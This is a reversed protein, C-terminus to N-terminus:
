NEKVIYGVSIGMNLLCDKYVDLVRENIHPDSLDNYMRVLINKFSDFRVGDIVMKDDYEFDKIRAIYRETIDKCGYKLAIDYLKDIGKLANYKIEGLNINYPVVMKFREDHNIEFVMRDTSVVDNMRYKLMELLETKDNRSLEISFARLIYRINNQLKNM